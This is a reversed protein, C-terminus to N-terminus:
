FGAVNDLARRCLHLLAHMFEIHQKAGIQEENVLLAVTFLSEKDM